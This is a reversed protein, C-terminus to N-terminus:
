PRRHLYTYAIWLGAIAPVLFELEPLPGADVLARIRRVTQAREGAPVRRAVFETRMALERRYLAVTPLAYALLLSCLLSAPPGGGGDANACCLWLSLVLTSNIFSCLFLQGSLLPALVLVVLQLKVCPSLTPPLLAGLERLDRTLVFWCHRPVRLALSALGRRRRYLAPRRRMLFMQALSPLLVCATLRAVIDLRGLAAARAAAAAWCCIQLAVLRLEGPESRAAAHETFAEELLASSFVLTKRMVAASTPMLAHPRPSHSARAATAPPGAAPPGESARLEARARRGGAAAEVGPPTIPTPPAATPPPGLGAPEDAHGDKM